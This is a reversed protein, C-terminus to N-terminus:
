EYRAIFEDQVDKPLDIFHASVGWMRIIIDKYSDPYIQAKKLDKLNVINPQHQIGGLKFFSKLIQAFKSAGDEEDFTSAYYQLMMCANWHLDTSHIKSVSKLAGILGTRLTGNQPSLTVPIPTGAFRGEPTAPINRGAFVPHPQHAGALHVGGKPTRFKNIERSTLSFIEIADEDVFPDDNCWKPSNWLYQRMEEYGNWNNKLAISVEALTYRQDGFVVKKLAALGNFAVVPSLIMVGKDRGICGCRSLDVGNEICGEYLASTVPLPSMLSQIYLEGGKTDDSNKAAQADSLGLAPEDPVITGNRVSDFFFEKNGKNYELISAEWHNYGEINKHIRKIINNKYTSLFTTYSITKNKLEEITDLLLFTLHIGGSCYHDGRGPILIDQCLGFGYSRADELPLGAKNLSQIVLEDNYYAMCNMGKVSLSTAMSLLWDPSKESIRVSILPEPLRTHYLAKLVAKTITNSADAGSQDVGGITVNHQASYRGMLNKDALILDYQDYMKLLLCGILETITEEDEGNIYPFLIQDIRGFNIFQFNEIITALYLFWFLQCAEQLNRPPNSAINSCATHISQLEKKRMACVDSQLELAYQAYRLILCQVGQYVIRVSQAFENQDSLTYNAQNDDIHKFLGDIGLKMVLNYNPAYHGKSIFEHNFGFDKIDQSNVYSPMANYDYCSNNQGTENSAGYISRTGVILEYEGIYLPMTDLIMKISFAKREALSYPLNKSTWSPDLVKRCQGHSTELMANKLQKLRIM